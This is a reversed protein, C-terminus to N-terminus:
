PRTRRASTALRRLGQRREPQCRSRPALGRRTPKSMQVTRQLKAACEYATRVYNGDADQETVFEIEESTWAQKSRATDQNRHSRRQTAANKAKRCDTCHCGYWDYGNETGHTIPM